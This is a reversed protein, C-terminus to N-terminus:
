PVVSAVPLLRPPDFISSEPHGLGWASVDERLFGAEPSRSAFRLSLSHKNCPKFLLSSHPHALVQGFKRSKRRWRSPDLINSIADAAVSGEFNRLKPVKRWHDM